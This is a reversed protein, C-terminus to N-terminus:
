YIRNLILAALDGKHSLNGLGSRIGCYYTQKPLKFVCPSVTYHLPSPTPPPGLRPSGMSGDWTSFPLKWKGFKIGSAILVTRSGARAGGARVRHQGLWLAEMTFTRHAPQKYEEPYVM